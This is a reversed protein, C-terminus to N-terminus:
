PESTTETSTTSSKTFLWAGLVAALTLCVWVRWLHDDRTHRDVATAMTSAPLDDVSCNSFDAERTDAFISSATLLTEKGQTINFFGPSEPASILSINPAIEQVEVAEGALDIATFILPEAQEGTRRTLELPESTETIRTEPAIKEKRLQECFRLLLVATAPQKLANSKNIDFNLILAKKGSGTHTRLYILPRNGQWLLIEDSQTHKVHPM